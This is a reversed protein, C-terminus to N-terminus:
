ERPEDKNRTALAHGLTRLAERVADDEVAAVQAGIKAVITPSPPATKDAKGASSPTFPEASLRVNGVLVYGFYRNVAAAIKQGEHQIALAHGPVCRLM